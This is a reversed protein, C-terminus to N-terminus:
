TGRIGPNTQAALRDKLVIHRDLFQAELVGDDLALVLGGVVRDKRHEIQSVGVGHDGVEGTIRGLSVIQLISFEMGLKPAPRFDGRRYLGRASFCSGTHDWRQYHCDPHCFVPRVGFLESRLMLSVDREVLRGLLGKALQPLQPGNLGIRVLDHAANPAVVGLFFLVALSLQDYEKLTLRALCPANRPSQPAGGVLM